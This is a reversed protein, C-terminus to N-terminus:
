SVWLIAASVLHYLYPIFNRWQWGIHLFLGGRGNVAAIRALLLLLAISSLLSRYRHWNWPLTCVHLLVKQCTVQKHFCSTMRRAPLICLLVATVHSGLWPWLYCIIYLLNWIHAKLYALPGSTSCCLKVTKFKKFGETFDTENRESRKYRNVHHILNQATKAVETMKMVFISHKQRIHTMVPRSPLYHFRNQGETHQWGLQQVAQGRAMIKAGRYLDHGYIAPSQFDLSVTLTLL